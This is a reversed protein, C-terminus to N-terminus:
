VRAFVMQRVDVMETLFGAECYAFYYEWLRRFREDFGLTTLHPWAARFAARWIGLTTAYDRGFAREGTLTVGYREGLARMVDRTPLMGGPFVYRRIFDLERRYSKFLSERITIVQLGAIGGPVLRARLQRFYLPWYAEGVAEFMEISVIRDYSGREDRYDRLEISVRDALGAQAIRERAFAHQAPSITLATVRCGVERAAFQAFGGWGCGIELVHHHACLGIREALARYKATQGQELDTEGDAFLASSYSMSPDLWAAYFANGLDYHAEINRRSGAKTNRNLWHLLLQSFRMLPRGDLMKDMMARNICFLKLFQTLDPTDWEGALYGEAIGIDGAALRAAFAADRVHMVAALGTGAVGFAFRAGDPMVVELRGHDLNAAFAFAQRVAFPYSRAAAEVAARGELPAKDVDAITM